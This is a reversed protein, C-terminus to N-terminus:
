GIEKYDRALWYRLGSAIRRLDKADKKTWGHLGQEALQIDAEVAVIAREVFEKKPYVHGGYYFSGVAGVAGIGAGYASDGGWPSMMEGLKQRSIRKGRDATHGYRKHLARKM